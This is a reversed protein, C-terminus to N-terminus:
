SSVPQKIPNICPLRIIFETGQGPQSLVAIEGAHERIIEQAIYLGIGMGRGPAKTTFFPDFIHAMDERSIGQGTDKISLSACATKCVPHKKTGASANHNNIGESVEGIIYSGEPLPTLPERCVSAQLSIQNNHDGADIANKLLNILVQQFRQYDVNLLLNDPIDLNIAPLQKLDNHLLLLTSDILEKLPVPEINFNKPQGFNKMASVIKHARMTESDIQELWSTLLTKDATHLEEKLLQCSSLINGLPNNLEHAVGSALIGLSALKETQLLRQKRLELEHLMRNFAKTFAVVEQENSKVQLHEFHGQAIPELNSELERLPRVVQRSLHYGIFVTILATMFIAGALTWRTTSLSHILSHREQFAMQESLISLQHGLPRLGQAMTASSTNRWQKQYRSVLQQYDNLLHQLDRIDDPVALQQFSDLNKHLNAIATHTYSIINDLEKKNHYLILNKEHRRMELIDDKFSSVEVGERVQQQLYLLNFFAFLCLFIIFLALLYFARSTKHRISNM